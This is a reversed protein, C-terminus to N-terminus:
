PIKKTQLNIVPIAFYMNFYVVTNNKNLALVCTYM